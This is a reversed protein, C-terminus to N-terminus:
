DLTQSNNLKPRFNAGESEEYQEKAMVCKQKRNSAPSSLSPPTLNSTHTLSSPAPAFPTLEVKPLKKVFSTIFLQRKTGRSRAECKTDMILNMQKKELEWLKGAKRKMRTITKSKKDKQIMTTLVDKFTRNEEACM